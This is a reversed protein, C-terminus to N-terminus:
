MDNTKRKYRREFLTDRAEELRDVETQSLGMGEILFASDVLKTASQAQGQRLLRDVALFLNEINVSTSIPIVLKSAESPELKLVGGGYSRGVLEASLHALTSLSGLAVRQVDVEPRHDIWVLRHIANTSTASSYNLVIRPWTTVMYHLFAAPTFTNPVVYWPTRSRCKYSDSAGNNKGESLYRELSEPLPGSGPPTVLLARKGNGIIRHVDEERVCLGQLQTARTLIPRIHSDPIGTSEQLWKSIIFFHNNGTVVGIRPIAWEGLRVVGAGSSIRDFLSLTTKDLLARLWGRDGDHHKVEQTTRTLAECIQVLDKVSNASGVRIEEHPRAKGEALLIVTEEEADYFVREQLLIVVVRKFSGALHQRVPMAYDAHLFSGPLVMALRGNSGLFRLSHLVFFAWYSARGPIKLGMEGLSAVAKERATDSIAHHRVYPPNGIVAGFPAGGLDSPRIDFFDATVFQNATGGAELIPDLYAKAGPDVDVGYLQYGPQSSGKQKLVQLAAYLFACGGFSPDLVTTDPDLIAWQTLVEAVEPPTYYRGLQKKRRREENVDSV